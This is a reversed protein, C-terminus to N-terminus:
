VGTNVIFIMQLRYGNMLGDQQYTPCKCVLKKIMGDTSNIRLIQIVLICISELRVEQVGDPCSLPPFM